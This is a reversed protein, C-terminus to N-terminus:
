PRQTLKECHLAGGQLRTKTVDPVRGTTLRVAERIADMAVQGLDDILGPKAETLRPTRFVRVSLEFETGEEHEIVIIMKQKM